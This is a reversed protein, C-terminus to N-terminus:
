VKRELSSQLIKVLDGAFEKVRLSRIKEIYRDYPQTAKSGFADRIGHENNLLAKVLKVAIGNFTPFNRYFQIVQKPPVGINKSMQLVIKRMDSSNTQESLRIQETESFLNPNQEKIKVIQLSSRDLINQIGPFINRLVDPNNSLWRLYESALDSNWTEYEFDDGLYRRLKEESSLGLRKAQADGVQRLGTKLKGQGFSKRDRLSLNRVKTFDEKSEIIQDYYALALGNFRQTVHQLEHRITDKLHEISDHKLPNVQLSIIDYGNPDFGIEVFGLDKNDVNATFMIKFPINNIMTQSYADDFAKRDNNWKSQFVDSSDALQMNGFHAFALMVAGSKIKPNETYLIESAPIEIMQRISSRKAYSDEAIQYIKDLASQSSKLEAELFLNLAEKIIARIRREDALM